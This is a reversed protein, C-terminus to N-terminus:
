QKQLYLKVSCRGGPVLYLPKLKGNSKDMWYVQMDINRITSNPKLDIFRYISPIYEVYPTFILDNGIFDTLINLFHYSTNNNTLEGNEYVQIPATVSDYVPLMNTTFIISSVPNWLEITKYEQIMVNSDASIVNNIQFDMGSNGYVMSAPLTSFLAYLQTNFYINIKGSENFGYYDSDFELSCLQSNVDFKFTPAITVSSNEINNLGVLCENLMNNFLYIVYQYSHVQYREDAEFPNTNQPVFEMFRQYVNGNYEMTCSYVTTNTQVDSFQPIFVPLSETNLSFRVVSMKYDTTDRLVPQSQNLYFKVPVRNNAQTQVSNTVLLDVYINDNQM